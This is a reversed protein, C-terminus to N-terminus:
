IRLRFRETADSLIVSEQPLLVFKGGYVTEGDIYKSNVSSICVEFFRNRLLVKKQESRNMNFLMVYSENKNESKRTIHLVNHSASFGDISVKDYDVLKQKLKALNRYISYHSRLGQINQAAWNKVRHKASVPLWTKAGNNFGANLTNDWQFPTREYDRTILHYTECNHIAKPDTGDKCEVEGNEQGIEEGYYTEAIGPLFMILMNYGDINGLRTAARHNDHNGLIDGWNLIYTRNLNKNWRDVIERVDNATTNINLGVFEFNFTFHAGLKSGDSKGYYLLTKNFDAYAETVIIKEHGSHGRNYEDVFSRLEYLLEISEDTDKTYIHEFNEWYNPNNNTDPLWPEDRLYEDEILYPAADIRFGDVGLNFYFALVRKIEDMVAPNRLNLDPQSPDFQHLYYQHRKENWSWASNSFVSLWKNPPQKSGNEDVKADIWVYYDEYGPVRDVSKEFWHHQDSTHNPVMDLIIMINLERAKRLLETLDNMTGYTPDISYYDSIDYGHDVQPSKFIPSMWVVTVGSYKLYDLKEIVGGIDGTGDNNSDKFSRPYVQYFISNKYWKTKVGTTLAFSLVSVLLVKLMIKYRLYIDY